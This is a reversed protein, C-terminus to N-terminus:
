TSRSFIVGLICRFLVTYTVHNMGRFAYMRNDVFAQVDEDSADMRGAKKLAELFHSEQVHHSNLFLVGKAFGQPQKLQENTVATWVAGHIEALNISEGPDPVLLRLTNALRM